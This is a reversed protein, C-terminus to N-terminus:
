VPSWKGGGGARSRHRPWRSRTSSSDARAGQPPQLLLGCRDGVRAFPLPVGQATGRAAVHARRARGSADGRQGEVAARGRQDAGEARCAPDDIDPEIAGVDLRDVEVSGAQRQAPRRPSRGPGRPRRACWGAEVSRCACGWRWWSGRRGRRTGPRARASAHDLGARGAPRHRDPQRATEYDASQWGTLARPFRTEDVRTTGM